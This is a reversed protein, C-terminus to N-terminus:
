SLADARLYREAISERTDPVCQLLLREIVKEQRLGDFYCSLAGSFCQFQCSRCCIPMYITKLFLFALPLCCKALYRSVVTGM